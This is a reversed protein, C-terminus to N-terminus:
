KKKKKRKEEREKKGTREREKETPYRYLFHLAWHLKELSTDDAYVRADEIQTSQLDHWLKVTASPDVGYMGHYQEVNTEVRKRRDLRERTWGLLELGIYLMEEDTVVVINHVSSSGSSSDESSHDDM